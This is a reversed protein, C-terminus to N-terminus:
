KECLAILNEVATTIPTLRALQEYQQHSSLLGKLIIIEQLHHKLSINVKTKARKTLKNFAAASNNIHLKILNLDYSELFVDNKIIITNEITGLVVKSGKSMSSILKSLPNYAEISNNNENILVYFHPASAVVKSNSVEISSIVQNGEDYVNLFGQNIIVKSIM